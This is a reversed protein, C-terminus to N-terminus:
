QPVKQAPTLGLDSKENRTAAPNVDKDSRLPRRLLQGIKVWSNGKLPHTGINQANRHLIAYWSTDLSGRTM